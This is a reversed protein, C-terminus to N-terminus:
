FELPAAITRRPIRALLRYDFGIIEISTSKHWDFTSNLMTSLRPIDSVNVCAQTQVVQHMPKVWARSLSALRVIAGVNWHSCYM